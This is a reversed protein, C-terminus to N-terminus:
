NRMSRSRWILRQRVLPLTNTATESDTLYAMTGGIAMVGMMACAAAAMVMQKKSKRM